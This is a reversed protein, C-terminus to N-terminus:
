PTELLAFKRKQFAVMVELSEHQHSLVYCEWVAISTTTLGITFRIGTGPKTGEESHHLHSLVKGYCGKWADFADLFGAGDSGHWCLNRLAGIM